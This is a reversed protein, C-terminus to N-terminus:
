SGTITGGFWSVGPISPFPPEDEFLSGSTFEVDSEGVETTRFTLFVLPATAVIDVGDAAVRSVGVSVLGPVSSNVLYNVDSGTGLATGASLGVYSVLDPDFEVVFDSGYVDSVGTVDVRVTLTDTSSAEEAMTVSAAQPGSEATFSASISPLLTDESCGAAVVLLLTALAGLRLREFGERKGRKGRAKRM